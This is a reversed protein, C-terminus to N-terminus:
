CKGGGAMKVQMGKTKGKSAVGDARTSASGGKAYAMGGMNM